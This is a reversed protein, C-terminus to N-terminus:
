PAGMVGLLLKFLLTSQLEHLKEDTSNKLVNLRVQYRSRLSTYPLLIGKSPMTWWHTQWHM